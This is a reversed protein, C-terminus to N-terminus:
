HSNELQDELWNETIAGPLGIVVLCTVSPVSGLTVQETLSWRPGVRQFLQAGQPTAVIGKARVVARPLAEAMARVRSLDVVGGEYSWTEFPVGHDHLHDAQPAVAPTTLDLLVAPDIVANVARVTPVAPALRDLLEDLRSDAADDMLDTKNVVVLDAAALQGRVTEGVYEDAANEAFQEGDVMVVVLDLRYGRRHTFAAVGAPDAVGSAEIVLREPRPDLEDIDSMAAGLGDVLSCCICGNPLAITNGATTDILSADINLEGFDNVLIAVREDAAALLHNLLTTKGAGLYGGIITVAIRDSSM